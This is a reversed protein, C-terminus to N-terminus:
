YGCHPTYHPVYDYHFSPTHNYNYQVPTQYVPAHYHPAQVPVHVHSPAYNL